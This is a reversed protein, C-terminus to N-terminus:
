RAGTTGSMDTPRWVHRRRLPDPDGVTWTPISPRSARELAAGYVFPKFTSGPQRAAQAVHDYQDRQFDRSGVWARVEGSDDPGDRRLRSGPAIKPRACSACSNATPRSASSRRPRRRAATSRRATSARRACSPTSCARRAVALLLRLAHRGRADSTYTRDLDFEGAPIPGTSTPWPRCRTPRASSPACRAQQLDYDLTTQVVLGDQQLNRRAQRGLRAAVQACLRHLPRGQRHKEAQRAFHLRLPTEGAPWTASKTSPAPKLM